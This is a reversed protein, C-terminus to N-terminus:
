KLVLREERRTMDCITEKRKWGERLNVMHDYSYDLAGTKFLRSRNKYLYFVSGKYGHLGFKCLHQGDADFLKGLSRQEKADYAYGTRKEMGVEGLGRRTEDSVYLWGKQLDHGCLTTDKAFHLYLKNRFLYCRGYCEKKIGGLKDSTPLDLHSKISDTAAHLAQGQVELKWLERRVYGTIQTAVFPHYLAGAVFYRGPASGENLEVTGFATEITPRKEVCAAFKGYLSNLINKYTDRKSGKPTESKLKWFRSVFEGLPSHCYKKDHRWVWGDHVQFRYDPRGRMIEIEYGTVWLDTFAGRVPRFASDFVIPYVPNFTTGSIRYVGLLDPKYKKVYHYDGRVMQPMEKMAKPFASNIDYEYLDEYVGPPVYFGNKGAHYSFESALRCPEPPFPFSERPRFFHHRLIKGALQPLSICPSIDYEKHLELIKGGLAEEALADNLAYEKFKKGYLKRQGLGPPPPLKKYPVDYIKLAAVLSKSGPPCFAASDIFRICPGLNRRVQTPEGHLPNGCLNREGIRKVASGPIEGCTGCLYGGLDKWIRAFNVRGYLMNVVYGDREFKIDNYQNYINEQEPQFLVTIDFRLNHFFVLNVGKELVRSSIWWMLRRFSISPNTYELTREGESAIQFTFIKGRVTETDAGFVRINKNKPFGKHNEKVGHERHRDSVVVTKLM